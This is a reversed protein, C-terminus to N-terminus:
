GPIAATRYMMHMRPPGGTQLLLQWSDADTTSHLLGPCLQVCDTAMYPLAAAVSDCEAATHYVDNM